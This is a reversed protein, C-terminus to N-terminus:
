VGAKYLFLKTAGTALNVLSLATIVTLLELCFMMRVTPVSSVFILSRWPARGWGPM